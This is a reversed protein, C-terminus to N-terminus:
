LSMGSRSMISGGSVVTAISRGSTPTRLASSSSRCSAAGPAVGRRIRNGGTRRMRVESPGAGARQRAMARRPRELMPWARRRPTRDGRDELGARDSGGRPGKGRAGAAGRGRCARGRLQARPDRRPSERRQRGRRRRRPGRGRQPSRAPRRARDRGRGAGRCEPPRRAAVRVHHGDAALHRVVHGVLFGTGGFVTRRSTDRGLPAAECRDAPRGYRCAPRSIEAGPLLPAVSWDDPSLSATARRPAKRRLTAKGLRAREGRPPRASGPAHPPPASCRRSPKRFPWRWASIPSRPGM